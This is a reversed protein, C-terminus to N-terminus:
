GVDEKLPSATDEWVGDAPEERLHIVMEELNLAERMERAATRLVDEPSLPERMRATVQGIMRERAARRQTDEFLRLNELVQALREAVTQILAVEEDSWQRTMDQDQVGLVGIVQGRLMVPAVLAAPTDSASATDLSQHSGGLTLAHKQEVAQQMEPLLVPGIPSMDPHTTEHYLDVASQVYSSWAQEVYRRQTMEMEAIAVQAQGFLRTNEIANAVQDAITQLVAIDEASFAAPQDSQVTMAGIVDGRSILPLALESRTAPLLPNDFHVADEGVDQAIRAQQNTICWGVMSAGDVKLKHGAALMQRGAEGTGAQLVAQKGSVGARESTQDVLFLGAYYLDFRDRILEVTQSLLEDLNRFSSIVRSVEAATQLQLANRELKLQSLKLDTIERGLGVIGIVNGQSDRLPIKTALNWRTIKGDVVELPEERNLLPKGSRIIAQEDAYFREAMERPVLDFDSKGVLEDPSTKGMRRVMALNCIIFRSETDKAYIHDPINDILGRLLNRERALAEGVQKRETFLRANAIANALQDAMSQLTAIDERTFAAPLDSQVTMSGIVLGQSILPLALESRTHPLLPNSFHVADEGVDLAIRPQRNAICWGAMSSGGIELKHGAAIMQRGAEGTGARLVAWKGPEDSQEGTQDVLFLGVYYLKFRDCILDVTQSLLEDLDLISSTARSVEAATQLQTSRHEVRQVLMAGQLASSIQARLTEYITGERPGAEFLVFGLQNEQFFLPEVVFSFQREQPRLGEPVLERSQFRPGAPELEIRGKETYALILRSWEPAPQPYRYPRPNEYLALYCSPIELESLGEALVDMLNDVDFTTILMQGVERLLNAQQEAQLRQFVQAREATKGIMVRAQQWLDEARATVDGEGLWPWTQRRLASLVNHWMTVDNGAATTQRLIGDLTNLFVDTGEGSVQAMFSELLREIQQHIGEVAEYGVEQVVASAVKRRDSATGSRKVQAAPKVSGAAAFVVDPDPCGCSQRVMFRPPVTVKEPVPKGDLVALLMEVAERGTEYFSPNVTTLPPTVVRSQRFDDYGVVAIDEPIREGQAQLLEIIELAIVDSVGVIAEVGDEVAEKLWQSFVEEHIRGNPYVAEGPFWPKALKAEVPLSHSELADTYAQYRTRFEANSEFMGAFAIRRYGHVEILHDMVLRIGQYNETTVLRIDGSMEGLLVVPMSSYRQCFEEVESQTLYAGMVGPWIILGDLCEVGALDCLVNAQEGFGSLPRLVGAPFSILNVDHQRAADMMGLWPLMAFDRQIESVLYGITPRSNQSSGQKARRPSQVASVHKEQMETTEKAWRNTAM